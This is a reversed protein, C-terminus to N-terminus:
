PISGYVKEKGDIWASVSYGVPAVCALDPTTREVTPWSIQEDRPVRRGHDAGSSTVRRLCRCISAM